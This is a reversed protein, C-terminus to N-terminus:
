RHSNKINFNGIGSHQYRQCETNLLTSQAECKTQYPILTWGKGVKDLHEIVVPDDEFVTRVIESNVTTLIILHLMLM